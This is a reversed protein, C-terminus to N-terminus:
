LLLPIQNITIFLLTMILMLLSRPSGHGVEEGDLSVAPGRTSLAPGKEFIFEYIGPELFEAQFMWYFWEGATDRFDKKLTIQNDNIAQVIVNGGPIQTNIKIKQKKM